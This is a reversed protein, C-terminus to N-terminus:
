WRSCVEPSFILSVMITLLYQRVQDDSWQIAEVLKGPHEDSTDSEEGFDADLLVWILAECITFDIVPKGFDYHRIDPQDDTEALVFEFVATARYRLNGM